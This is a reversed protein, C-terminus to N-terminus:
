AGAETLAKRLEEKTMSSRGEIEAQQARELLEEKTQSEEAEVAEALEDKTMSSRGQVNVERARELLDEKTVDEEDASGNQQQQRSQRQQQRGRSRTEQSRRPADDEGESGSDGQLGGILQQEVERYIDGIRDALEAVGDALESVDAFDPRDDQVAEVLRDVRRRLRATVLEGVEELTAM